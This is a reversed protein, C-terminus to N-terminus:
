AALRRTRRIGSMSDGILKAAASTAGPQAYMRSLRQLETRVGILKGKEALWGELRDVVAQTCRGGVFEPYLERGAFLNPLAVYPSALVTRKVMRFLLPPMSCVFAAPAAFHLIELSVLGPAAVAADALKLIEQTRGAHLEVPFRCSRFESTIRDLHEYCQVGVLFRVAQDRQYLKDAVDIMLRINSRLQRVRSGPLLAVVSRGTRAQQSLVFGHDLVADRLVDFHPHGVYAVHEAGQQKYWAEEFPLTCLLQVGPPPATRRGFLSRSAWSQPPVFSFAPIGRKLALKALEWDRESHEVLILADARSEKLARAINTPSSRVLPTNRDEAAGQGVLKWPGQPKVPAPVVDAQRYGEVITLPDRRQLQRILLDAYAIGAQGGVSFFYRM